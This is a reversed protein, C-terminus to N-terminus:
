TNYWAWIFLMCSSPCLFWEKILQVRKEEGACLFLRYFTYFEWGQNSFDKHSSILPTTRRSKSQDPICRCQQLKLVCIQHTKFHTLNKNFFHSQEVYGQSRGQGKIGGWRNKWNERQGTCPTKQTDTMTGRAMEQLLEKHQLHSGSLFFCNAPLLQTAAILEVATYPAQHHAHTEQGEASLM